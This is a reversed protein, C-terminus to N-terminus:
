IFFSFEWKIQIETHLISNQNETLQLKICKESTKPSHKEPKIYYISIWM